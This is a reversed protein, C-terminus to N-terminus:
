GQRPRPVSHVGGNRDDQKGGQGAKAESEQEPESKPKRRHGPDRGKGKEGDGIQERYAAQQGRGKMEAMRFRAIRAKLWHRELQSLRSAQADTAAKSIM